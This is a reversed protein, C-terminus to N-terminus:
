QIHCQRRIYKAADSGYDMQGSAIQSRYVSILAGCGAGTRRQQAEQRVGACWDMKISAMNRRCREAPGWGELSRGGAYYRLCCSLQSSQNSDGGGKKGDPVRPSAEQKVAPKGEKGVDGSPNLSAMKTRESKALEAYFGTPYKALFADWASRTGVKSAFEYDRIEEGTVAPRTQSGAGAANADPRDASLSALVVSSGGLSGYVFPEQSNGTEHLVEDRVRGFVIRVDLDPTPLHKILAAAFPSHSGDGDAATSGARAAFAILTDSTTPEVKALGRGVSRSALTRRMTNAFPNNRCADLIVLRFKKAPELVKLIRDLSVAEDEVDVDRKMAADVPVLYNVGDVEIGHGAFYIVAIDANQSVDTFDRVVRRFDSISLNEKIQVTDFGISKFLLGIAAADRQPNPLAPVHSYASNGIILAARRDARAQGAGFYSLSVVSLVFVILRM